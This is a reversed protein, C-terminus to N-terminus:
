PLSPPKFSSPQYTSSMERVWAWIALAQVLLRMKASPKPPPVVPAQDAM